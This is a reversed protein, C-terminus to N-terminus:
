NIMEGVKGGHAEWTASSFGSALAPSVLSMSEIRSQPIEQLLAHYGM